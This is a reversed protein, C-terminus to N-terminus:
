YASTLDTNDTQDEQMTQDMHINTANKMADTLAKELESELEALEEQFFFSDGEIPKLLSIDNTKADYKAHFVKDMWQMNRAENFKLAFVTEGNIESFGM